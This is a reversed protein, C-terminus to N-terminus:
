YYNTNNLINQLNATSLISKNRYVELISRHNKLKNTKTQQFFASREKGNKLKIIIENNTGKSIYGRFDGKIDNGKLRIDKIESLPIEEGNLIIQEKELSLEGYFETSKNKSLFIYHIANIVLMAVLGLNLAFSIEAFQNRYRYFYPITSTLLSFIVAVFSLILLAFLITGLRIFPRKKTNLTKFM